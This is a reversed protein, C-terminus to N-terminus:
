NANKQANDIQLCISEITDFNSPDLDRLKFQVTFKKELYSILGVFGFSDLLGSSFLATQLTLPEKTYKQLYQHLERQKNKYM